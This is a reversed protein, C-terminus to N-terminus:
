QGVFMFNCLRLLPVERKREFIGFNECEKAPVDEIAREKITIFSLEKSPFYLRVYGYLTRFRMSDKEVNM